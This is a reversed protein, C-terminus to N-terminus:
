SGRGGRVTPSRPAYRIQVAPPHPKPAEHGVVPGAVAVVAGAGILTGAGAALGSIRPEAGGRALWTLVALPLLASAIEHALRLRTEPADRQVATRLLAARQGEPLRAFAALTAHVVARREAEEVCGPAARVADVLARGSRRLARDRVLGVLWAGPEGVEERRVRAWADVLAQELVERALADPVSRSCAARLPRRYRRVIAEFARPHGQRALAVLREDTQSRLVALKM